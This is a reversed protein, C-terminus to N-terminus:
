LSSIPISKITHAAGLACHCNSCTGTAYAPEIEDESHMQPPPPVIPIPREYHMCAELYNIPMNDTYGGRGTCIMSDMGVISGSGASIGPSSGSGSASGSTTYPLNNHNQKNPYNTAMTQQSFSMIEESFCVRPGSSQLWYDDGSCNTGTLFYHAKGCQWKM